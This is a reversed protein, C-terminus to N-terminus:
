RCARRSSPSTGAWNRSRAAAANGTYLALRGDFRLLKSVQAVPSKTTWGASGYPGFVNQVDSLLYGTASARYSQDSLQNPYIASGFDSVFGQARTVSNAIVLQQVQFSNLDTPASMAGVAAFTDPYQVAYSLAGFGGMSLGAIARSARTGKGRFNSEAWPLLQGIHFTRWNRARGGLDARVWDTYWGTRGGEPMVVVGRFPSADIIRPADGSRVWAQYSQVFAGSPTSEGGGHLLMLMDYSSTPSWGPPLYVYAHVDDGMAATRLTVDLLTGSWTAMGLAAPSVTSSATVTLGNGSVPIPTAAAAPPDAVLCGVGTGLMLVLGVIVTRFRQLAPMFLVTSV